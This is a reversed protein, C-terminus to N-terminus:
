SSHAGHRTFHLSHCERCFCVICPTLSFPQMLTEAWRACTRKCRLCPRAEQVLLWASTAVATSQLQQCTIGTSCPVHHLCHCGHGPVLLLSTHRGPLSSSCPHFSCCSAHATSPQASCSSPGKILMLMVITPHHMYFTLMRDSCAICSSSCPPLTHPPTRLTTCCRGKDTLLLQEM